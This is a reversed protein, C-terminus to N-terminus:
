RDLAKQVMWRVVEDDDVPKGYFDAAAEVLKSQVDGLHAYTPGFLREIDALIETGRSGARRHKM